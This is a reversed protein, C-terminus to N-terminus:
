PRLKQVHPTAVTFSHRQTYSGCGSEALAKHEPTRAGLCKATRESYGKVTKESDCKVIRESEFKVNRESYLQHFIDMKSSNTEHIFKGVAKTLKGINRSTCRGTMGLNRIFAQIM